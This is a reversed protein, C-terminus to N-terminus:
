KELGLLRGVVRVSALSKAKEREVAPLLATRTKEREDWARRAMTCLSDSTLDGFDISWDGMGLTDIFNKSKPYANLNVIPTGVACGLIMAHTRMAVLLEVRGLIGALAEFDYRPNEARFVRDSCDMAEIVERTIHRDMVQTVFFIVDADLERVLRDVSEAILKVFRERGFGDKSTQWADIYANVNFGLLPRSRGEVGIERMMADIREESPPETNLACDAGLVIEPGLLGLDELLRKSGEDRLIAVPMADVVRKMARKGRETRIPGLSANYPVM